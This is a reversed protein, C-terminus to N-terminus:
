MRGTFSNPIQTIRSPVICVSEREDKDSDISSTTKESFSMPIRTPINRTFHINKVIKYLIYGSLELSM